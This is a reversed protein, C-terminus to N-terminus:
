LHGNRLACRGQTSAQFLEEVNAQSLANWYVALEDLHLDVREPASGRGGILLDATTDLSGTRGLPNARGVEKGDRYFRIGDAQDRDVSVAFKFSVQQGSQQALQTSFCAPSLTRM